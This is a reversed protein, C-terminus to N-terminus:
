KGALMVRCRKKYCAIGYKLINEVGDEFFEQGYKKEEMQSVAKQCVADLNGDHAYKVEIIIGTEGDQTEVLIDSYGEGSEGNSTIGWQDKVGLIGILIGHYFNEKQGKQVFTDRLSITKKLYQEFIKEVIEADGGQLTDCFSKLTEGDKKVNEKFYDMIQTAFVDLIERNPIALKLAKGELTGRQTLYGTTFLVSWINEVSDYM